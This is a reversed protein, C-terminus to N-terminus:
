TTRLVCYTALLLFDSPPPLFYTTLPSSYTALLLFTSARSSTRRVRDRGRGRVRSRASGRVRASVRIRVRVRDRVRDRVLHVRPVAVLELTGRLRHRELTYGM